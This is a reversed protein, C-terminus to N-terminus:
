HSTHHYKRNEQVTLFDVETFRVKIETDPGTTLRILDGMAFADFKDKSVHWQGRVYDRTAVSGFEDTVVVRIAYFPQQPM